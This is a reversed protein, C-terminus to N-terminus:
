SLRFIAVEEGIVKNSKRRDVTRFIWPSSRPPIHEHTELLLSPKPHKAEKIEPSKWVQRIGLRNPAPTEHSDHRFTVILRLFEPNEVLRIKVSTVLEIRRCEGVYLRRRLNHMLLKGAHRDHCCRAIHFESCAIGNQLVDVNM